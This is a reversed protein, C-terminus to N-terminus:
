RWGDPEGLAPRRHAVACTRYRGAHPHRRHVGHGRGLAPVACVAPHSREPWVACLRRHPRQHRHRYAHATACGGHRPGKRGNGRRPHGAQRGHPRLTQPIGPGRHQGRRGGDPDAERHSPRRQNRQRRRYRHRGDRSGRRREVIRETQELVDKMDVLGVDPAGLLSGAVGFGSVQIADFGCSEIVKASLADHAGPVVLALRRELTERLITARNPSM